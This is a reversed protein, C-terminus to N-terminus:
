QAGERTRPFAPLVRLSLSTIRTQWFQRSLCLGTSLWTSNEPRALWSVIHQATFSPLSRSRGCQWPPGHLLSRRPRGRSGGPLFQRQASPPSNSSGHVCPSKVGRTMEHISRIRLLHIRLGLSTFPSSISWMGRLHYPFFVLIPLVSTALFPAHTSISINQM